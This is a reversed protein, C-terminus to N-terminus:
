GATGFVHDWFPSSVGFRETEGGFHHRMHHAKLKKFLPSRFNAFHVAFHTYDYWLYGFLFGGFFPKVLETGMAISFLLYFSAAIMAGAIPPMLLRRADTPDDHHVGHILFALREQIRGRPKFHFIFRHLLYEALTWVVVGAAALLLSPGAGIAGDLAGESFLYTAVSGWVIAPLAPHVYTFRELISNNFIRINKGPHM